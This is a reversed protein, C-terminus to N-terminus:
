RFLFNHTALKLDGAEIKLVDNRDVSRMESDATYATYGRSFFMNFTEVFNPNMSVSAPQHETASIEILWIPRPNNELTRLAGQLMGLEAGEIDVLILAKKGVLSNDLIRDLTLVPVLRVYSEPIGAWGRILSAGTGSGWMELVGTAPGAAVPLIQAKGAWGNGHINKLLYHVNREMPEIAIVSRGHSLAHCCYYGVNAGVNVFVEVDNLLARVLRTEEPEFEGKAMAAHGALGFGWPTSVWPGRRDLQDRLNRALLSVGPFAEFVRRLLRESM